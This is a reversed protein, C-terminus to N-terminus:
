SRTAGPCINEQAYAAYRELVDTAELGNKQPGFSYHSVVAKGDVIADVCTLLKETLSPPSFKRRGTIKPQAETFYYEDDNHIPRSAVVDDGSIAIFQIGMRHYNYDWINFKYRWLENNELHEFFSYHEQAAITWYWLGPSFADYETTAIPTRDISASKPMPLWRHGAFPPDFNAGIPFDAPGNWTPLDSAKWRSQGNPIPGPRKLEPLYPKVVGLHNHVWSLSPQNM